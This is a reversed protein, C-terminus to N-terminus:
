RITLATCRRGLNSTIGKLFLAREGHMDASGERNKAQEDQDEGAAIPAVRLRWDGRRSCRLHVQFQCPALLRVGQLLDRGVVVAVRHAQVVQLEVDRWDSEAALAFPGFSCVHAQNIEADMGLVDRTRQFGAGVIGNTKAHAEGWFDVGVDIRCGVGVAMRETDDTGGAHEPRPRGPVNKDLVFSFKGEFGARLQEFRNGVM